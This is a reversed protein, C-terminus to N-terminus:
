GNQIKQIISNSRFMMYFSKFHYKLPKTLMMHPLKRLVSVWPLKLSHDKIIDKMKNPNIQQTTNMYSIHMIFDIEEM